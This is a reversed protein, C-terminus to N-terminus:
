LNSYKSPAPVEKGMGVHHKDRAGTKGKQHRVVQFDFLDCKRAGMGISSARGEVGECDYIEVDENFGIDTIVEVMEDNAVNKPPAYTGTKPDFKKNLMPDHLREIKALQRLDNATEQYMLVKQKNNRAMLTDFLTLKSSLVSVFTMIVLIILTTLLTMGSQQHSVPMSIKKYM